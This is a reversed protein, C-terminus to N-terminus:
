TNAADRALHDISLSVEPIRSDPQVSVHLGAPSTDSSFNIPMEMLKQRSLEDDRTLAVEELALLLGAFDAPAPPAQVSV